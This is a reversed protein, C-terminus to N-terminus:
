DRRGLAIPRQEATEGFLSGALGGPGTASSAILNENAPTETTRSYALRIATGTPRILYSIGARPQVGHGSTLGDYRDFRLGASLNWDGLSIGDQVFLALQHINEK